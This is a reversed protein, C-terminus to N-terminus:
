WYSAIPCTIEPFFFCRYGGINGAHIEGVRKIADAIAVGCGDVAAGAGVGGIGVVL